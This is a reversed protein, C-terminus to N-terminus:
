VHECISRFLVGIVSKSDSITFPSTALGSSESVARSIEAIGEQMDAFVSLDFPRNLIKECGM